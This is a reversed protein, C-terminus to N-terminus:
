DRSHRITVVLLLFSTEVVDVGAIVLAIVIPLPHGLVWGAAASFAAVALFVLRVGRVMAALDQSGASGLGGRVPGLRRVAAALMALGAVVSAGALTARILPAPTVIADLLRSDWGFLTGVILAAIGLLLPVVSAYGIGRETATM